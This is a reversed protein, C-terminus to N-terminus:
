EGSELPIHTKEVIVESGIASPFDLKLDLELRPTLSPGCNKCSLTQLMEIGFISDIVTPADSEKLIERLVTLFEHSDEMAGVKFRPESHTHICELVEDPNLEDGAVSAEVFLKKLMEALPGKPRDLVLMRERLKGLVLLCQLVASM